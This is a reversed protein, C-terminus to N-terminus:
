FYNCIFKDTVIIMQNHYLGADFATNYIACLKRRLLYNFYFTVVLADIDDNEHSPIFTHDNSLFVTKCFGNNNLNEKQPATTIGRLFLHISHSLYVRLTLSISREQM